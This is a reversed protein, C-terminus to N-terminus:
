EGVRRKGTGLLREAVKLGKVKEKKELPLLSSTTEYIKELLEDWSLFTNDPIELDAAIKLNELSLEEVKDTFRFQM